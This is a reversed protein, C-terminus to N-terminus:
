SEVLRDESSKVRLYNRYSSFGASLILETNSNNKHTPLLHLRALEELRCRNIVRSFNMGYEKNIFTSVYNRNTCLDAAVDTIRLRPNLYPKKDQLYQSFRNPDIVFTNGPAPVNDHAPAIIVYNDSLLNYCLIPYVFFTPLAGQTSLWSSSSFVDINLLLGAIPLPITILTLLQMLLLWNLSTRQVDASYDTVNRRYRRIRLIGLLPYLINYIVFVISTLSNLVAFLRNGEGNGYVVEIQRDIPVTLTIATSAATLLVPIVFHLRSFGSGRETATIIHVFRFILVQDLMLALTFLTFCRVFARHNIVQLVLCLWLIAAVMFTLALFLRLSKEHRIKETYLVDLLMMAMCALACVAPTSFVLAQIFEKSIM